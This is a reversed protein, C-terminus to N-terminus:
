LSKNYWTRDAFSNLSVVEKLKFMDRSFNLNIGIM